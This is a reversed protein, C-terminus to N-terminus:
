RRSPSPPCFSLRHDRSLDPRIQRWLSKRLLTPRRAIPRHKANSAIPDPCAYAPSGDFVISLFGSNQCLYIATQLVCESHTLYSTHYFIRALSNGLGNCISLNKGFNRVRRWKERIQGGPSCGGPGVGPRSVFKDGSASCRRRRSRGSSRM